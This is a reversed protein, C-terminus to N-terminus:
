RANEFMDSLDYSPIRARTEPVDELPSEGLAFVNRCKLDQSNDAATLPSLKFTQRGGKVNALIVQLQEVSRLRRLIMLPAKLEGSGSDVAAIRTETGGAADNGSAISYM